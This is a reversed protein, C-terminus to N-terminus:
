PRQPPTQWLIDTIMWKGDFKALHMYDIGWTATLKASATQDSVDYIVIEKKSNKPVRGTKNWKGALDYLEQYTMRAPKYTGDKDRAFGIKFLDRHVSREIRTSDVEYLAEVYDLVAQRVAEGDDPVQAPTSDTKTKAKPMANFVKNVIKWEGNVKLLSMYDIMTIEPYDLVIRATGANGTIELSEIRRKRQSEDAAPKGNFRSAFEEVSLNLLKGDRFAMIKAEPFFAKRIYDPNGTAQGNMYNELPVRAAAAENTANLDPTELVPLMGIVAALVLALVRM